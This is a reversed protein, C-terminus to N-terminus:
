IKISVFVAGPILVRVQAPVDGWSCHSAATIPCSAINSGTGIVSDEVIVASLLMSCTHGDGVFSIIHSSFGLGKFSCTVIICYM